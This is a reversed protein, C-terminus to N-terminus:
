LYNGETQHSFEHPNKEQSWFFKTKKSQKHLLAPGNGCRHWRGCGIAFGQSFHQIRRPQVALLIRPFRPALPKHSVTRTQVRLLRTKSWDGLPRAPRFVVVGLILLTELYGNHSYM